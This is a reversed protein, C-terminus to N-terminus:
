LFKRISSYVHTALAVSLGYTGFLVSNLGFFGSIEQWVVEGM